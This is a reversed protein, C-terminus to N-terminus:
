DKKTEIKVPGVEELKVVERFPTDHKEDKNQNVIVCALGVTEKSKLWAGARVTYKKKNIQQKLKEGHKRDEMINSNLLKKYAQIEEKKIFGFEEKCLENIVATTTVWSGIVIVNKKIEFTSNQKIVQPMFQKNFIYKKYLDVNNLIVYLGAATKGSGVSFNYIATNIDKNNCLLYYRPITQYYNMIFYRKIEAENTIYVNKLENYVNINSDVIFSKITNSSKNLINDNSTTNNQTTKEDNNDNKPKNNKDVM